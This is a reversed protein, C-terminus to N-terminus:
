VDKQVETDTGAIIHFENLFEDLETQPGPDIDDNTRADRVFVDIELFDRGVHIVIPDHKGSQDYAYIRRGCIDIEFDTIRVVYIVDGFVFVDGPRMGEFIHHGTNETIKGFFRVENTIGRPHGWNNLYNPYDFTPRWENDYSHRYYMTDGNPM